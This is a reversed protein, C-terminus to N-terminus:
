RVDEEDFIMDEVKENNEVENEDNGEEKTEKDEGDNEVSALGFRITWEGKSIDEPENESPQYDIIKGLEFVGRKVRAFLRGVDNKGELNITVVDKKPKRERLKRTNSAITEYVIDNQADVLLDKLEDEDIDDEDDENDEGDFDDDDDDEDDEGNNDEDDNDQNDLADDYDSGEEREEENDDDDVEADGEERDEDQELGFNDDDEDSPDYDDDEEDDSLVLNNITDSNQQKLAEELSQNVEPFVDEWKWYETELRESITDLCDDLCECQWCFWDQDPDINAVDLPPDLCKQHYARLCGARDCLLIDNDEEEELNCKSCLIDQVDIMDNEDGEELQPWRIHDCNESAIARLTSVIAQKAKFIREECEKRAAEHAPNVGREPASKGEFNVELNHMEKNLYSLGRKVRDKYAKWKNEANGDLAVNRNKEKKNPAMGKPKRQKPVDPIFVMRPKPNRKPRENM